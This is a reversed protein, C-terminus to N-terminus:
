KSLSKQEKELEIAFEKLIQEEEMADQEAQLTKSSTNVPTSKNVKQKSQEGPRVIRKNSWNDLDITQMMREYERELDLDNKKKLEEPSVKQSRAVGMSKNKYRLGTVLSLGYSSVLVFGSFPIGVTILSSLGFGRPRADGPGGRMLVGM